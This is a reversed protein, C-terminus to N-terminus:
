LAQIFVLLLLLCLGSLSAKTASGECVFSDDQDVGTATHTVFNINAGAVQETIWNQFFSVRAFVEPFGRNACPVGFSTIGAQIWRSGQKCQVPGGSDGQCIGRGEEGACLMNSTIDHPLLSYSCGCQRNGIVPIRVEQLREFAVNPQDAGLRGWGTAWCMTGNHFQSNSSAMCVPRIYNNYTVPSSLKFLAIDNEFTVNNYDAHVIVQSVTRSVEQPNVGTQNQKGFYMLWPSTSTNTICHAATLVWEESILTGGCIHFGTFHMSVQWPWWGAMADEGGVIRSNLPAEGCDQAKLDGQMALLVGLFLPWMTRLMM